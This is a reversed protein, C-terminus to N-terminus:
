VHIDLAGAHTRLTTTTADIGNNAGASVDDGLRAGAFAGQQQNFQYGGRLNFSLSSSDAQLGADRLAQALSSADQQLLNLTDSRDASVVVTVRGDHNISLKVDVAGLDAPQLQIQIHDSGSSVAQRLTVAVQEAVIHPPISLAPPMGNAITVPPPTMTAIQPVNTADAKGASQASTAANQDTTGTTDHVLQSATGAADKAAAALADDIGGALAAAAPKSSGRAAETLLSQRDLAALAALDAEGAGLKTPATIEPTASALTVRPQSVLTLASAAIRMSLTGAMSPLVQGPLATQSATAAITTASTGTAAATPQTADAAASANAALLLLAAADAPSSPTPQPAALTGALAVTTGASGAGGTPQPVPQPIPVPAIMVRAAGDANSPDRQNGTNHQDGSASQGGSSHQGGNPRLTNDTTAVRATAAASSSDNPSAFRHNTSAPKPPTLLNLFQLGNASAQSRAPPPTPDFTVNVAVHAPM